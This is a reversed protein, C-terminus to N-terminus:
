NIQLSQGPLMIDLLVLDPNQAKFVDVASLGDSAFVPAYGSASLVLGVMERLADDDDVVLIRHTM